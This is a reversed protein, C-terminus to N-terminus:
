GMQNVAKGWSTYKMAAVFRRRARNFSRSGVGYQGAPTHFKPGFGAGKPCCHRYTISGDLVKGLRQKQALKAAFVRSMKPVITNAIRRLTERLKNQKQASQM